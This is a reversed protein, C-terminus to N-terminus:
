RLQPAQMNAKKSYAWNVLHIVPACFLMPLSSSNQTLSSLRVYGDALICLYNAEDEPFYIAEGKRYRREASAAVLQHRM